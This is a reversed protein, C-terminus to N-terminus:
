WVWEDPLVVCGIAFLIVAVFGAIKAVEIVGDM